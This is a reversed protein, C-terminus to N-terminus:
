DPAACLLAVPFNALVSAARVSRRGGSETEPSETRDFLNRLPQRPCGAPLEVSTDGWVNAGLPPVDWDGTLRAFPRPAIVVVRPEARPPVFACIHPARAGTIKCPLYQGERYLAEHARRHGLVAATLFLKARGDAMSDVLSRAFAADSTQTGTLAELMRSRLPYNVPRRNDPDVLSFDWLENGQYIDPVGPATLKCLTQSLSNLMGFRAIRRQAEQIETFFLNGERPELLARIFQVLAEEYGASVDSWSTRTKAERSAKLMYAEIRERYEALASEDMPELPWTGLLTQYLLYEQNPGPAPLGDIERKRARNMRSWRALWKRWTTTMESLVNIRARVDESRKTDHTSTALMEHPWHQARYRADAHFSRVSVGFIDPDGGVENLSSLRHFRYLTTDELSKAMMPGTFQQVKL